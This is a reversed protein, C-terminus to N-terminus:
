EQFQVVTVPPKAFLGKSSAASVLRPLETELENMSPLKFGEPRTVKVEGDLELDCATRLRLGSELFKSIKFLSLGILLDQAEQEIGYGRLQALDLNFFATISEATYEDRSFPVNGFGKSRDGQPDVRDFKMGGSTAVSIGKAEIFASLSRPVKFRGGAIDKKAIFVGHILSNPDYKMLVSALLKFDVPGKRQAGLEEKLRDLFSTDSSELIYPSNIRHSELLSTTLMEGDKKVLIYPLGKLPEALDGKADDWCVAELRNAMSQASEILCMETGDSLMYTAAGLDPFGTPQLRSGQLPKLNAEILIRPEACLDKFKM